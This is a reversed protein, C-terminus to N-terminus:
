NYKQRGTGSHNETAEAPREEFRHTVRYVFVCATAQKVPPPTHFAFPNVEDFKIERVPMPYNFKTKNELWLLLSHIDALNHNPAPHIDQAAPLRGSGRM